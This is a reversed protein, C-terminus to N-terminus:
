KKEEELLRRYRNWFSWKITLRRESLWPVHDENSDLAVEAPIWVNFAAELEKALMTADFPEGGPVLKAARAIYEAIVDTTINKENALLVQVLRRVQEYTTTM